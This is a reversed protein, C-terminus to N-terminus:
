RGGRLARGPQAGVNRCNLYNAKGVVAMTATTGTIGVLYKTEEPM